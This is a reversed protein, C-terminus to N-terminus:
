EWVLEDWKKNDWENPVPDAPDMPKTPNEISSSGDSESCGVVTLSLLLVLLSIILTSTKLNVDFM